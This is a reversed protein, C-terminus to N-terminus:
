HKVSVKVELSQNNESNLINEINEDLIRVKVAHPAFHTKEIEKNSCKKPITQWEATSIKVKRHSENLGRSNSTAKSETKEWMEVKIDNVPYKTENIFKFVYDYSNDNKIKVIFPSIIIKPKLIWFIIYIAIM